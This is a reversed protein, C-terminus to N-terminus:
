YQPFVIVIFNDILEHGQLPLQMNILRLLLAQLVFTQRFSKFLGKNHIYVHHLEYILNSWLCHSSLHNPSDFM